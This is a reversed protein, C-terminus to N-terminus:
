RGHSMDALIFLQIKCIEKLKLAVSPGDGLLQDSFQLAVKTPNLHRIWSVIKAIEYTEELSRRLLTKTQPDIFLQLKGSDDSNQSFHSM